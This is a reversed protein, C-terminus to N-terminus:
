VVTYIKTLSKNIEKIQQRIEEGYLMSSVIVAGDFTKLESPDKVEYGFIYRGQKNKNNDVIYRINGQPLKSRKMLVFLLAGSGWIVIKSGSQVEDNIKNIFSLEVKSVRDIYEKISNEGTIDKVTNKTDYEFIGNKKYLAINTFQLYNTKLIGCSLYHGVNIFGCKKFFIDSSKQSFYNIHEHNFNNYILSNDIILNDFSPWSVIIHGDAKLYNDSISQIAKDPCLLHELVMTMIVVDAKDLVKDPKEYISGRIGDIGNARLSMISILSPDIGVINTYGYTKLTKLLKGNGCGMDIIRTKRDAFSNLIRVIVEIDYNGSSNYNWGGYINQNTYYDNYEELTSITDAYCNDCRDCCIIDYDGTVSIEEPLQMEIRYIIKGYNYDCSPCRRKTIM